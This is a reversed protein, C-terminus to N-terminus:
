FANEIVNYRDSNEKISEIDFILDMLNSQIMEDDINNDKVLSDHIYNIGAISYKYFHNYKEIEVKKSNDVAIAEYWDGFAKKMLLEDEENTKILSAITAAYKIEEFEKNYEPTYKDFLIGVLGGSIYIERVTKFYETDLLTDIKSVLEDTHFIIEKAFM